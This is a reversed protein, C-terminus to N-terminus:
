SVQRLGDHQRELTSWERDGAGREIRPHSEQNNAAHPESVRRRQHLM